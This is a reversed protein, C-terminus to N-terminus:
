PTDTVCEDLYKRYSELQKEDITIGQKQWSQRMIAIFAASSSAGISRAVAKELDSLEPERLKPFVVRLANLTPKTMPASKVLRGLQVTHRWSEPSMKECPETPM